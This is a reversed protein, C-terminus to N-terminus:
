RIVLHLNTIKNHLHSIHAELTKLSINMFTAIEKNSLRKRKHVLVLVETFTPLKTFYQKIQIHTLFREIADNKNTCLKLYFKYLQEESLLNTKNVTKTMILSLKNGANFVPVKFTDHLWLLGDKNLWVQNSLCQTKETFIMQSELDLIEQANNGWYPKMTYDFDVITRDVIQNISQLGFLKLQYVNSNIYKGTQACKIHAPSNSLDMLEDLIRIDIMKSM